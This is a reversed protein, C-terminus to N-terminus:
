SGAFGGTTSRWATGSMARMSWRRGLPRSLVCEFRKPDLRWGIEVTPVVEPLYAPPSLMIYGLLRGSAREEVAGPRPGDTQQSELKGHLFFEAEQATWGRGFPYEWVEPKAFIESLDRLDEPRWPRIRLRPTLIMEANVSDHHCGTTAM